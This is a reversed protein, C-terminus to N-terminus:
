KMYQLGCVNVGIDADMHYMEYFKGTKFLLVTDFYASKIKWWQEVGASWPKGNNHKKLENQDVKLTRPNYEPHDKTRGKEDHPNQIFKLHHHVHSGAPNVENQVYPLAKTGEATEADVLSPASASRSSSSPTVRKPTNSQSTSFASFNALSKPTVTSTASSNPKAASKPTKSASQTAPVPGNSPEAPTHKTVKVAKTKLKKKGPAKRKGSVAEDDEDDSVLWQDQDHDQKEELAAEDDDYASGETGDSSLSDGMEFEEEDSDEQIRPRKKKPQTVREDTEDTKDEEEEEEEMVDEDEIFRFKEQRLDIWECEDDEYELYFKSRDERQKAVVAPYYKKDDPWFVAIKMGIKVKNVKAASNITRPQGPAARTSQPTSKSTSATSATKTASAPVDRNSSSVSSSVAEKPKKTFFSFLNGQKMGNIPPAPAKKKPPM